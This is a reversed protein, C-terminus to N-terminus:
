ELISCSTFDIHFDSKNEIFQLISIAIDDKSFTLNNVAHENRAEPRCRSKGEIAERVFQKNWFFCCASFFKRRWQGEISLFFM